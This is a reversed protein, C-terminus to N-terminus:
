LDRLCLVKSGKLGQGAKYGMLILLDKCEEPVLHDKCGKLVLLGRLAWTVRPVLHAKPAWTVKHALRVRLDWTVKLALIVRHDLHDRLDWLAMLGLIDKCEKPGM